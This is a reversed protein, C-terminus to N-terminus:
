GGFHLSSTAIDNRSVDEPKEMYDCKGQYMEKLHKKYDKITMGLQILCIIFSLCISSMFMFLNWKIITGIWNETYELFMDAESLSENIRQSSNISQSAAKKIENKMIFKSSENTIYDQINAMLFILTVSFYYMTILAAVVMNLFRSTFHFNEDWEYINKRFFHKFKNKLGKGLNEDFKNSIQDKKDSKISKNNNRMNKVYRYDSNCFLIENEDDLNSLSFITKISIKSRSALFINNALRYYLGVVLFSSFLCAPLANLTNILTNIESLQSSYNISSLIKKILSLNMLTDCIADEYITQIYESTM